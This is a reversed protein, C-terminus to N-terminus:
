TAARVRYAKSSASRWLIPWLWSCSQFPLADTVSRGLSRGNADRFTQHQVQAMATGSMLLLALIFRM